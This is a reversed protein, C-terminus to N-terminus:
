TVLGEIAIDTSYNWLIIWGAQDSLIDEGEVECKVPAYVHRFPETMQLFNM